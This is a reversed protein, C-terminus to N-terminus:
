YKWGFATYDRCVEINFNEFQILGGIWPRYEIFSKSFKILNMKLNKLGM